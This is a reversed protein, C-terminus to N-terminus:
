NAPIMHVCYCFYFLISKVAIDAFTAKKLNQSRGIQTVKRLSLYGM